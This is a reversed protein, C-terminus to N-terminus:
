KPLKHELCAKIAHSLESLKIPKILYNRIGLAETEAQSFTKSFGTMVIIPLDPKIKLLEQCLQQGTMEPMMQDTIVVDVQNSHESFYVLAENGDGCAKVVYGMSEVSSKLIGALEPEDEVILINGEGHSIITSDKPEQTQKNDYIPFCITFTSGHGYESEVRIEGGHNKVIGHVVALGLGTGKGVAKNTFFPNFIKEFNEPLIGSGTDTISLSMVQKHSSAKCDVGTCDECENEKLRINLIGGSDEMAHFANTCLNIIIQQIQIEDAMILKNTEPLSQRIEISAPLTERIINIAEKIVPVLNTPTHREPEMRSFILIQKVLRAARDGAKSISKVYAAEKANDDLVIQLLQTNGLIIALINNFDHAIGGALTGLAELKQSQRLQEEIQKNQVIEQELNKNTEVLTKTKEEVKKELIENIKRLSVDTEEQRVWSSALRWCSFWLAALLLITLALINKIGTQWLLAQYQENPLFLAVKWFDNNDVPKHQGPSFELQINRSERPSRLMPYITDFTWLGSESEFQGEEMSIIQEWENPYLHAMSANSNDFMFGWELNTDPGKLWYGEENILWNQSVETSMMQDFFQLLQKGMYNLIIIGQKNGNRDYVPTGLRIMPKLPQEIKGMEMNLDFPSLFYEGRNLKLTDTFYYRNSKNQLKDNPVVFAKGEVFNVRVQEQGEIDIWRMQDYTGKIESYVPWDAPAQVNSNKHKETNILNHFGDESALYKLDQFISQLVVDISKGGQNIAKVESTHIKVRNFEIESRLLAFAGGVCIISIPIFLWLFRRIVQKTHAKPSSVKFKFM